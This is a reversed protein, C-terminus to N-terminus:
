QGGGERWSARGAKGLHKRDRRRCEIRGEGAETHHEEGIGYGGKEVNSAPKFRTPPEGESTPARQLFIRGVSQRHLRGGCIQRWNGWVDLRVRGARESERVLLPHARNECGGAKFGDVDRRM